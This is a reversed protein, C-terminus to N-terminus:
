NECNQLSLTWSWPTPLNPKEQPREGQNTPPWRSVTDEYSRKEPTEGEEEQLSALSIPSSDMRSSTLVKVCSNQPSEIWGMVFPSVSLANSKSLWFCQVQLTQYGWYWKNILRPVKFLVHVKGRGWLFFAALTAQRCQLTTTISLHFLWHM